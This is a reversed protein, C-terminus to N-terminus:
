CTQVERSEKKSDLSDTKLFCKWKEIRRLWGRWTLQYYKMRASDKPNKLPFCIIIEVGQITIEKEKKVKKSTM